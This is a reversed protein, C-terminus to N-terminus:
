IIQENVLEVLRATAGVNQAVLAQARLRVDARVAQHRVTEYWLEMEAVTSVMTGIGNQALVLPLTTREQNPGFSVPLGYVAAELVNHQYRTFGGGVYAMQGYRYLRSLMGVTDIVLIQARRMRETLEQHAGRQLMAACETYRVIEGCFSEAMHVFFGETLEHPVVMMRLGPQANALDSTLRLDQDDHLSGAVMVEYGQCFMAMVEDQFEAHAVASASDYLLDGVLAVKRCGLAELRCKSEPMTTTILTMGRLADRLLAGYWKCCASNERIYCSLLLRPVGRRKLERLFNPWLEQASFIACAPRVADLLTRANRPTDIPLLRVDDVVPHNHQLAEYGTVSFFTLLIRWDGEEKLRQAVPRLIGWEGLSSAHMWVWPKGSDAAAPASFDPCSHYRAFRVVKGGSGRVMLGACRVAHLYM